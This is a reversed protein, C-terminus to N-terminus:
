QAVAVVPTAAPRNPSGSIATEYVSEYRAAVTAWDHRRAYDLAARRFADLELSSARAVARMTEVVDDAATCWGAASAAVGTAREVEPSVVSPVGHAAAELLAMPLGESRSLLMLVDACAVAADLTPGCRPGTLRVRDGVGLQGILRRLTRTGDRFDGGVIALRWDPLEAMARVIIDLRKARVDLRGVYIAVRSAPPWGLEERLGPEASPSTPITVGNPVIEVRSRVGFRRIDKEEAATLGCVVRARRLMPLEFLRAFVRKRLAHYALAEPAYGGHPSIAFPVRLRRAAHNNFPNFVGHLHVIDVSRSNMARATTSPFSIASRRPALAVREVGAAHLDCELDHRVAPWVDPQWVQIANGRRAQAIALHVLSTLVGSYPHLGPPVLHAIHV